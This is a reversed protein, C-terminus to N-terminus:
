LTCNSKNIGRQQEITVHSLYKDYLRLTYVTINPFESMKFVRPRTMHGYPLLGMTLEYDNGKKELKWKDTSLSLLSSVSVIHVLHSDGRDVLGKVPNSSPALWVVFNVTCTSFRKNTHSKKM